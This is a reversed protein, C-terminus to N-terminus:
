GGIGSVIVGDMRVSDRKRRNTRRAAQVGAAMGAAGEAVVAGNDVAVVAIGPGVTSGVFVGVVAGEGVMAMVLVGCATTHEGMCPTGSASRGPRIVM